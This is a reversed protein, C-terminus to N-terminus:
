ERCAKVAAIVKKDLGDPLAGRNVAYAQVKNVFLFIFKKTVRLKTIDRYFVDESLIQSDGRYVAVSVYTRFFCYRNLTPIRRRKVALIRESFYFALTVVAACLLVAVAVNNYLKGRGAFIYAANIAACVFFLICLAMMTRRAPRSMADRVSNDIITDACAVPLEAADSASVNTMLPQM